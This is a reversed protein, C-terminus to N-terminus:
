VQTKNQQIKEESVVRSKKAQKAREFASEENKQDKSITHYKACRMKIFM